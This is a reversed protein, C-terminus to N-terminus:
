EEITSLNGSEKAISLKGTENTEAISLAGSLDEKYRENMLWSYPPYISYTPM